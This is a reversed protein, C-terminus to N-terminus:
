VILYTATAYVGEGSHLQLLLAIGDWMKGPGIPSFLPLLEGSSASLRLRHDKTALCTYRDKKESGGGSEHICRIDDMQWRVYIDLYIYWLWMCYYTITFAGVHNRIEAVRLRRWLELHCSAVHRLVLKWPSSRCICCSFGDPWYAAQPAVHFMLKLVHCIQSFIDFLSTRGKKQTLIKWFRKTDFSDWLVMSLEVVWFFTGTSTGWFFGLLLLSM